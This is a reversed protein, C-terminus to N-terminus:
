LKRKEDCYKKYCRWNMCKFCDYRCKKAERKSIRDTIFIDYFCQLISGIILIIFFNKLM